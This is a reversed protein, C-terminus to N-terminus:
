RDDSEWRDLFKRIRDANAGLDVLGVRSVSRLDVMSGGGQTRVRIVVDDKFGFWFTTATAEVIGLGPDKNVVEWGLDEALAAARDLSANADGDSRVGALDPYGEAQIAAEEETYVLSNTNPGRIDVIADFVLPDERDTSVDHTRPVTVAKSFQLGSWALVLAAVIAGVLAPTKDIPRKRITGFVFAAIGIVLALVALVVGGFMTSLGTTYDWWGWRNGLAGAPLAAAAIWGVYFAFRALLGPSEDGVKQAM